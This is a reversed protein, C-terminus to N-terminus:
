HWRPFGSLSVGILLKLRERILPRPTILRFVFDFFFKRAEHFLSVSKRWAPHSKQEIPVVPIERAFIFATLNLIILENIIIPEPLALFGSFCPKAESTGALGSGM